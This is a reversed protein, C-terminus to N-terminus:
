QAYEWPGVEGKRGGGGAGWKTKGGKAQLLNIAVSVGGRGGPAPLKTGKGPIACDKKKKIISEEKGTARLSEPMIRKPLFAEQRSGSWGRDGEEKRGRTKQREPCL